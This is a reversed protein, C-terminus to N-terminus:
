SSLAVGGVNSVIGWKSTSLGVLELAQGLGAFTATHASGTATSNLTAGAGTSSVAQSTSGTTAVLSKRIGRVPADLNYASQSTSALQTVGSNGINAATSATDVADLSVLGDARKNADVVVARSAAVTGRTVGGILEVFLRNREEESQPVPLDFSSM